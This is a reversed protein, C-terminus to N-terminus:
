AAPAASEAPMYSSEAASAAASERPTASPARGLSLSAVADAVRAETSPGTPVQFDALSADGALLPILPFDPETSARQHLVRAERLLEESTFAAPTIVIVAGDAHTLMFDLAET